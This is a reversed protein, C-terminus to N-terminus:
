LKSTDCRSALEKLSERISMLAEFKAEERLTKLRKKERKELYRRQDAEEGGRSAYYIV